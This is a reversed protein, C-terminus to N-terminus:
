APLKQDVRRPKQLFLVEWRWTMYCASFWKGARRDEWSELKVMCPGVEDPVQLCPLLQPISQLPLHAGEAHVTLEATGGDDRPVVLLKLNTSLQVIDCEFWCITISRHTRCPFVPNNRLSICIQRYINKNAPSIHTGKLHSLSRPNNGADAAPPPHFHHILHWWSITLSCYLLGVFQVLTIMQSRIWFSSEHKERKESKSILEEIFEVMTKQKCGFNRHLAQAQLCERYDIPLAVLLNAGECVCFVNHAHQVSHTCVTVVSVLTTNKHRKISGSIWFVRRHNCHVSLSSLSLSMRKRLLSM